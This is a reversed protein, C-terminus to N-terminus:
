GEPHKDWESLDWCQVETILCRGQLAQELHAVFVDSKHKALISQLAAILELQMYAQRKHFVLWVFDRALQRRHFTQIFDQEPYILDYYDCQNNQYEKNTRFLTNRNRVMDIIVARQENTLWDYQISLSPGFLHFSNFQIHLKMPAYLIATIFDEFARALREHQVKTRLAHWNFLLDRRKFPDIFMSEFFTQISEKSGM